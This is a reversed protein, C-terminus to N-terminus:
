AQADSPSEMPAPAAPRVRGPAEIWDIQVRTLLQRHGKKRRYNKRRKFKRVVLKPGKFTGLVRAVVCTDALVPQGVKVGADDRFALVRSLRVETGPSLDERYDLNLQQGEEVKYQRGGEEIIAYM